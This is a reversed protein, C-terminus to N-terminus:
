PIILALKRYLTDRVEVRWGALERVKDGHALMDEERQANRLRVALSRLETITLGAFM